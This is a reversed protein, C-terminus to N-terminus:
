HKRRQKVRALLMKVLPTHTPVVQNVLDDTLPIWQVASLDDGAQPLMTTADKPTLNVLFLTTTIRDRGMYRPDNQRNSGVYELAPTYSGDGNEALVLGTEEQLERAASQEYCTDRPDAFGGPFRWETEGPKKGLLVHTQTAPGGLGDRGDYDDAHRETLVAIDVTPFVKPYQRQATYIAGKRFDQSSLPPQEAVQVRCATGSTGDPQGFVDEGLEVTHIRGKYHKIFSDRGGYLTISGIPAIVKVTTDLQHSWRVDEGVDPLPLIIANPFSELVMHARTEYDLPNEATGLTPSVGLLIITRTHRESVYEILRRHKPHLEEVQFRAVIVGAGSKQILEQPAVTAFGERNQTDGREDTLSNNEFMM